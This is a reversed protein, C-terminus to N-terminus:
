SSTLPTEFKPFERHSAVDLYWIALISTNGAFSREDRRKLALFSASPYGKSQGSGFLRLPGM